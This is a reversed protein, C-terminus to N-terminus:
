SIMNDFVEEVKKNKDSVSMMAYMGRSKLLHEETKKRERTDYKWANVIGNAEAELAMEANRLYDHNKAKLIIIEDPCGDDKYSYVLGAEIEDPSIGYKSAAEIDTLDECYAENLDAAFSVASGLEAVSVNEGEYKGCGALLMVPLMVCVLKKM